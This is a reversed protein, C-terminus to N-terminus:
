SYDRQPCVRTSPLPTNERSAIFYDGNFSVFQEFRTRNNLSINLNFHNWYVREVTGASREGDTMTM